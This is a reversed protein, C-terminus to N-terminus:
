ILFILSDERFKTMLLLICLLAPVIQFGYIVRWNQSTKLGEYDSNEPNNYALLTSSLIALCIILNTSTGFGKDILHSPVTEEIIKPVASIIFGAALGYLLRGVAIVWTNAVLTIGTFIITFLNSVIVLPRRGRQM